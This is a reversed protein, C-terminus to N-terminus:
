SQRTLLTPFENISRAILVAGLNTINFGGAPCKTVLGHQTLADLIAQHGNPLPLNLLEFYSPCDLLQLVQEASQRELAVQTEFPTRDLARWLEREKEPYDKLKKKYSGIRIWPQHQFQIPHKFAPDIELLILPKSDIVCEFFRFNVKPSLRQLVWNELLENGVKCKTPHFSTGIVEHTTDHVGWLLYAKTKGLLAASNSLASIYEGIGETDEYSTKFEAWEAEAPLKRLEEILGCVYETSYNGM